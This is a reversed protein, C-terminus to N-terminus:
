DMYLLSSLAGSSVSERPVELPGPIGELNKETLIVFLLVTQYVWGLYLFQPKFEYGRAKLALAQFERKCM